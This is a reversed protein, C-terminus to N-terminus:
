KKTSSDRDSNNEPRQDLERRKKLLWPITTSAPATGNGSGTENREIEDIANNVVDNPHIGTKSTLIQERKIQRKISSSSIRRIPTSPSSIVM